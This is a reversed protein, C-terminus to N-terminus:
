NDNNIIDKFIIKRFGLPDGSALTTNNVLSSYPKATCERYINIFDTTNIDSSHNIAIQQLERKNPIKTIFFHTTFLKLIHNRLLFLLFM